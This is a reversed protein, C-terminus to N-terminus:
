GPDARTADARRAPSLGLFLVALVSITIQKIYRM